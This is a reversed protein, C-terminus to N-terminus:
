FSGRFNGMGDIKVVGHLEQYKKIVPITKNKM